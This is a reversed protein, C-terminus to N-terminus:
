RATGTEEVSAITCRPQDAPRSAITVSMGRSVVLYDQCALTIWGADCNRRARRLRFIADSAQRLDADRNGNQVLRAVSERALDDWRECASAVATERPGEGAGRWFPWLMTGLLLGAIAICAYLPWALPLAPESKSAFVPVKSRM